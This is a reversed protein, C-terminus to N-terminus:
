FSRSEKQPSKAPFKYREKNPPFRQLSAWWWKLICTSRLINLRHLPCIRRAVFILNTNQIFYDYRVTARRQLQSIPNLENVIHYNILRLFIYIELRSLRLSNSPSIRLFNFLNICLFISVYFYLYM